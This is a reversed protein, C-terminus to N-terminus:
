NRRGGGGFFSLLFLFLNIFDLYMSLAGVLGLNGANGEPTALALSKMKQADWAALLTFVIVGVVSIAFQLASNHWFIGVVIALLLGWFGMMAFQGMGALSRRTVTGFLAMGGFMGATVVFASTISAMTYVVFIGSFVFGTVAAIVIFTAAAATASMKLARRGFVFVLGFWVILSGWTLARNSMMANILERDSAVALAVVATIALGVCMWGYVRKLFSSVRASADIAAASFQSGPTIEFPDMTINVELVIKVRFAINQKGNGPEGTM